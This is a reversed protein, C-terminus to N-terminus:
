QVLNMHVYSSFGAVVTKTDPLKSWNLDFKTM